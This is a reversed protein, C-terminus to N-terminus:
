KRNLVNGWFNISTNREEYNQHWEDQFREWEKKTYEKGKYTKYYANDEKEKSELSYLYQDFPPISQDDHSYYASEFLVDGTTGDILIYDRKGISEKSPLYVEYVPKKIKEEIRRSVVVNQKNDEIDIDHEKKIKLILEKLSFSYPEDHDTEKILIGNENYFKATSIPFQNFCMVYFRLVSSKKDYVWTKTYRNFTLSRKIQIKDKHSTIRVRENGKKLFQDNESSTWDQDIEWDQYKAITFYEM